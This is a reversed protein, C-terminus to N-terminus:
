ALGPAPVLRKPADQQAMPRLVRDLVAHGVSTIFPVTQLRRPGGLQQDALWAEAGALM